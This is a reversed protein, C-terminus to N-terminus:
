NVQCCCDDHANCITHPSVKRNMDRCVVDPHLISCIMEVGEEDVRSVCVFCDNRQYMEDDGPIQTINLGRAREGGIWGQRYVDCSYPYFHHHELFHDRLQSFCGVTACCCLNKDCHTPERKCIYRVLIVPEPMLVPNQFDSRSM